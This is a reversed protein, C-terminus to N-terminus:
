FVGICVNKHCVQFPYKKLSETLEFIANLDIERIEGRDVFLAKLIFFFFRKNLIQFKL